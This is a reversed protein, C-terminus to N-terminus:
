TFSVKTLSSYRRYTLSFASWTDGLGIGAKVIQVNSSPPLIVRTPLAMGVTLNTAFFTIGQSFTYNWVLSSTQAISGYVTALPITNGSVTGTMQLGINRNSVTADTTITVRAGIIEVFSDTPSTFQPPVGILNFPGATVVALYDWVTANGTTGAFRTGPIPAAQEQVEQLSDWTRGYLTLTVTSGPIAQSWQATITEGRMTTTGSIVSSTDGSGLTTDDLFTTPGLASLSGQYLACYPYSTVPTSQPQTSAQVRALTVTWFESASPALSVTATGAASVVASGTKVLYRAGV